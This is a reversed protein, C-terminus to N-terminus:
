AADFGLVSYPFKRLIADPMMCITAKLGTGRQIQGGDAGPAATNIFLSEAVMNVGVSGSDPTVDDTVGAQTWTAVNGSCSGRGNFQDMPTGDMEFSTMEWSSPCPTVAFLM